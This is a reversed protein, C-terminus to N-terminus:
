MHIGGGGFVVVVCHLNSLHLYLKKTSWWMCVGDIGGGFFWWWVTCTARTYTQYRRWHTSPFVGGTCTAIPSVVAPGLPTQALPQPLLVVVMFQQWHWGSCACPAVTLTCPAFTLVLMLAVRFPICCCCAVGVVVVISLSLLLVPAPIFLYYLYYLEQCRPLSHRLLELRSMLASSLQQFKFKASNKILGQRGQLNCAFYCYLKESNCMIYTANINICLMTRTNISTASKSDFKRSHSSNWVDNLFPWELVSWCHAYHEKPFLAVLQHRPGAM